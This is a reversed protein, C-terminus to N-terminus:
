ESCENNNISITKQYDGQIIIKILSQAMHMLKPSISGSSTIKVNKSYETENRQEKLDANKSAGSSINSKINNMSAEEKILAMVMKHPFDNGAVVSVDIQGLPNSELTVAINAFNKTEILIKVTEVAEESEPDPGEIKDFIDITFDLNDEHRSSLPLWPLYLLMLTKLAEPGTAFATSSAFLNMLEKLASVDNAGHKAVNAITMMLKQMAEKSNGELLSSLSSLSIKGNQLLDTLRSLLQQNLSGASNVGSSSTIQNILDTFDRPINLLDKAYNAKQEIEITTLKMESALSLVMPTSKFFMPANSLNQSQLNQAVSNFGTGLNSNQANQAGQSTGNQIATSSVVTNAIRTIIQLPNFGTM